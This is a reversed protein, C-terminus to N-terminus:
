DEINIINSIRKELLKDQAKEEKKASSKIVVDIKEEIRRLKVSNTSMGYKIKEYLQHITLPQNSSIDRQTIGFVFQRIKEGEEIINKILFLKKDDNQKPIFIYVIGQGPNLKDGVWKIELGDIQPYIYEKIIGSFKVAKFDVKKILDLSTVIDTKESDLRKTKLGIILYGGEMNAFSSVDKALEYRDNPDDFDYPNGNKAEFYQNEKMDIFKSFDKKSIIELINKIEPTM